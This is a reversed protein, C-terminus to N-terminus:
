CFGSWMRRTSKKGPVPLVISTSVDFAHLAKPSQNSLSLCSRVTQVVTETSGMCQHISDPPRQMCQKKVAKAKM